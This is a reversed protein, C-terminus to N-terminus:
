TVLGINGEEYAVGIKVQQQLVKKQVLIWDIDHWGFKVSSERSISNKM